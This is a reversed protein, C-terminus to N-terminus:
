QGSGKTEFAMPIIEDVWRATRDAAMKIRTISNYRSEGIYGVATIGLNKASTLGDYTDDMYFADEAKVGARDLTQLLAEDKPWASGRVIDIWPRLKLDNLRKDLVEQMEASVIAVTAGNARFANLTVMVGPNLKADGWHAELYRKRIQNLEGGTVKAPIGHGWYFQMFDATIEDRYVDISPAALGFTKFIEVVSAYAVVLSNFLTGDWDFMALQWRGKM